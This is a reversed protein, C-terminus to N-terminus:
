YEEIDAWEADALWQNPRDIFNVVNDLAVWHKHEEDAIKNWMKKEKESEAKEAQGRYYGEADDEIDRAKVWVARVGESFDSINKKADSMEKFINKAQKLVDTEFAKEYGDFKGAMMAKFIQYHRDEDDALETFIRKLVPESMKSAQEEYYKKGDMEMNMAYEFPNM